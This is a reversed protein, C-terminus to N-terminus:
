ADDVKWDMELTSILKVGEWSLWQVIGDPFYQRHEPHNVEGVVCVSHEHGEHDGLVTAISGELLRHGIGGLSTVMVKDGDKYQM